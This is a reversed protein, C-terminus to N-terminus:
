HLEKLESIQKGDGEGLILKDITLIGLDNKLIITTGGNISIDFRDYKEFETGRYPPDSLSVPNFGTFKGNWNNVSRMTELKLKLKKRGNFFDPNNTGVLEGLRTTDALAIAGFVGRALALPSRNNAHDAFLRYMDRLTGNAVILKIEVEQNLQLKLLNLTDNLAARMSTSDGIKLHSHVAFKSYNFLTTSSDTSMGGNLYYEKPLQEGSVAYKGKVAVQIYKDSWMFGNFDASAFKANPATPLVVPANIYELQTIPKELLQFEDSWPFHSYVMLKPDIDIWKTDIANGLDAWTVDVLTKKKNIVVINWAHGGTLLNIDNFDTKTVGIVTTAKLGGFECLIEFVHSYASCVGIREPGAIMAMIDDQKHKLIGSRYGERDYEMSEVIFKIISLARDKQDPFPNTLYEVLMKLNLSDPSEPNDIVVDRDFRIFFPKKFRVDSAKGYAIKRKEFLRKKTSEMLNGNEFHYEQYIFRSYFSQYYPKEFEWISGFSKYKGLNRFVLQKGNPNSVYLLQEYLGGTFTRLVEQQDCDYGLNYAYLMRGKPLEWSCLASNAMLNSTQFLLLFILMARM